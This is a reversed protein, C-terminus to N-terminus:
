NNLLINLIINFKRNINGFSNKIKDKKSIKNRM